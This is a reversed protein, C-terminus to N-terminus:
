MQFVPPLRQYNGVSPLEPLDITRRLTECLPPFRDIQELEVLDCWKRFRTDCQRFSVPGDKKHLLSDAAAADPFMKQGPERIRAIDATHGDLRHLIRKQGLHRDCRRQM